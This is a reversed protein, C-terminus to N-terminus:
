ILKSKITLKYGFYGNGGNNYADIYLKNQGQHMYSSINAISQFFCIQQTIESVKVDNIFMTTTDDTFVDVSASILIGPVYFYKTLLCHYVNNTTSTDWISTLGTIKTDSLVAKAELKSNCALYDNTSSTVYFTLDFNLGTPCSSSLGKAIALICVQIFFSM